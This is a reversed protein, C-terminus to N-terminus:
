ATCGFERDFDALAESREAAWAVAKEYEGPSADCVISAATEVSYASVASGNAYRCTFIGAKVGAYDRKFTVTVNPFKIFRAGGDHAARIDSEIANYETM